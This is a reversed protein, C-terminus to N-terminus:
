IYIYYSIYYPINIYKSVNQLDKFYVSYHKELKKKIKVGVCNANSM